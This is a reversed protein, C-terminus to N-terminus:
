DSVTLRVTAGDDGEKPASRGAAPASTSQAALRREGERWADRVTTLNEILARLINASNEINAKMAQARVYQYFTQLTRAAEGGREFNLSGELQAIIALARCLHYCKKEVNRAEIAAIARLLAAIAGDYLMVVLGLPSAGQVSMQRYTLAPHKM